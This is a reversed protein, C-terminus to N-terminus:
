SSCRDGFRRRYPLVVGNERSKGIRLSRWSGVAEALQEPALQEGIVRWEYLAGIHEEATPRRGYRREREAALSVMEAAM